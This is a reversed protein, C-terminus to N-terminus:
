QQMDHFCLGTTTYFVPCLFPRPNGRPCGLGKGAAHTQFFSLRNDLRPFTQSRYASSLHWIYTSFLMVPSPDQNPSNATARQIDRAFLSGRGRPNSPIDHAQLVSCLVKELDTETEAVPIDPFGSRNSYSGYYSKPAHISRASLRIRLFVWILIIFDNSSRRAGPEEEADNRYRRWGLEHSLSNWISADRSGSGHPRVIQNSIEWGCSLGERPTDMNEKGARVVRGSWPIQSFWDLLAGLVFYCFIWNLLNLYKQM